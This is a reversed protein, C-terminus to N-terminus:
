YLIHLCGLGIVFSYDGFPLPTHLKWGPIDGRDRSPSMDRM